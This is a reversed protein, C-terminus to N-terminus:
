RPRARREREEDSYSKVFDAVALIKAEPAAVAKITFTGYPLDEPLRWSTSFVGDKGVAVSKEPLKMERIRLIVEQGPPFGRGYVRLMDDSGLGAVGSSPHASSVLLKALGPQTM